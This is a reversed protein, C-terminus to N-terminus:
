ILTWVVCEAILPIQLVVLLEAKSMRSVNRIGQQCVEKRLSRLRTDRVLVIPSIPVIDDMKQANSIEV